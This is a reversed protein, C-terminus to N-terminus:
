NSTESTKSRDFLWGFGVGISGGAASSLLVTKIVSLLGDRMPKILATADAVLLGLCVLTTFYLLPALVWKLAWERMLHTRARIAESIDEVFDGLSLKIRDEKTL